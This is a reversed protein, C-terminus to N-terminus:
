SAITCNGDRRVKGYMYVLATILYVDQILESSDNVLCKEKIHKGEHYDSLDASALIVSLLIPWPHLIGTYSVMQHFLSFLM